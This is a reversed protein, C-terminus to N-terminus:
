SLDGTRTVDESNAAKGSVALELLELLHEVTVGHFKAATEVTLVKGLTKRAVWSGARSIGFAEMVGAIDGYADLIDSIRTKSTIKLNSVNM